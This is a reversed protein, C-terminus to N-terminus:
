DAFVLAIGDYGGVQVLSAREEGGFVVASEEGHHAVWDICGNAEEGVEAFSRPFLM